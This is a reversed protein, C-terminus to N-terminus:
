PTYVAIVENDSLKIRNGKTAKDVRRYSPSPAKYAKVGDGFDGVFYARGNDNICRGFQHGKYTGTEVLFVNTVFATRSGRRREYYDACMAPVDVSSAQLEPLKTATARHTRVLAKFAGLGGANAVWNKASGTVYDVHEPNSVNRVAKGELLADCVYEFTQHNSDDVRCVDHILENSVTTSSVESVSMHEKVLSMLAQVFEESAM